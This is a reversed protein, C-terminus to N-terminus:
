CSFLEAAKQYESIILKVTANIQFHLHPRGEGGRWHEGIFDVRFM